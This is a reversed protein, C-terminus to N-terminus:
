HNNEKELGLLRKENETLKRYEGLALNKDLSIAGMRIRKLYLVENGVAAFMRKIQHYKGEQITVYCHYDDILELQAPMLKVFAENKAKDRIVIGAAFELIINKELKDRVTVYYQKEVHKKPSLLDHGLRGHNTILLLGETDKDLRGVPFLDKDPNKILQLVTKQSSDETASIVGAPKNLMYYVYKEYTLLRGDCVVKDTLCDEKFQLQFEPKYITQGNVQVSGKKIIKKVESRSGIGKITLFKDLRM